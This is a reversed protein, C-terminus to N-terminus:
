ARLSAGVGSEARPRAWLRDFGFGRLVTTSAVGGLTGTTKARAVAVTWLSTGDRFGSPESV